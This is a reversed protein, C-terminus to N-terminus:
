PTSPVTVSATPPAVKTDPTTDDASTTLSPEADTDADALVPVGVPSNMISALADVEADADVVDAASFINKPSAVADALM